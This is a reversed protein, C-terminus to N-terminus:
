SPRRLLHVALTCSWLMFDRAAVHLRQHKGCTHVARLSEAQEDLVSGSNLQLHVWTNMELVLRARRWTANDRSLAMSAALAPM